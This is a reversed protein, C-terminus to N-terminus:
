TEKSRKAILIAGIIALLLVISLAEFVLAYDTLLLRGVTHLTWDREPSAAAAPLHRLHSWSLVLFLFSPVIAVLVRGFNVPRFQGAYSLMVAFVM